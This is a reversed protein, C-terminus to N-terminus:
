QFHNSYLKFLLQIIFANNPQAVILFEVIVVTTITSIHFLLCPVRVKFINRAVTVM